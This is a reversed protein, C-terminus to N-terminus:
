SRGEAECIAEDAIRHCERTMAPDGIVAPDDEIASEIEARITKLAILMRPANAILVANADAEDCGMWSYLEAVIGMKTAIRDAADAIVTRHDSVAWPGPTHRQASM